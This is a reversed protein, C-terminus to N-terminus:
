GASADALRNIMEPDTLAPQMPDTGITGVLSEVYEHSSVRALESQAHLLRDRLKLEESVERRAPDALFGEIHRELSRWHNVERGRRTELRRRYWDSALLSERTFLERIEPAEITKGEFHGEAMVSLVAKLPPCALEYSHDDFYRKAVREQAETIQLIGDAYSVPDQREPRLLEETFVKSPNDFVRALYIRVFKETIRYGLRSAPITQGDATFDEIKELMGDRIMQHPDREEPGMRCWVEPILMSIDHGVAFRPGIHGAATSFGGLGTLILSVVCANLDIAPSLANFPGKTMAGESGAGTTSPSKGTLSCIYDMLLEPLEQYHLPSYVALSRHGAAPDPPNNRRGSLVAGVPAHIPEDAALKRHLQIGRMAVYTDHANVMDPRDQLYRPNKTPSGDVIRPHSTSVVYGETQESAHRLMKEMPGSYKDFDIADTVIERAQETTLPEFNSVFNGRRSLDWETQKDLGRHIADDPRQFLRYECNEVFKYSGAEAVGLGVDGVKSAPVVTSCSIDDERQVKAAAIFDQRLKFTRWNIGETGIRLYTGVLSRGDHKLEYGPSGNVIDVSFHQRWDEGMGPRVFRKIILVLAYVHEPITELWANYEDSFEPSPTLLQILSGLSRQPDLVRRSPFDRYDPRDRYDKSWRDQYDREFIEELKEFDAEHDKVFIPGYLMYDRLSKSIESKGGGSVTCPKHCFVGEGVTGVLRWSPAAPHKELRIKYGSPAIYTQKPSLPIRHEKGDRTWKVCREDLTVRADEPIYIVDPYVRDIGYGEPRVDIFAGYKAAVDDFTQGNYRRSNVQFEEGLSYSAFALAGGAHEEEANGMMNTAYSIQTKVEKKCYGYYNDAILTVMVGSANRCSLKFASGDNYRESEDKWCMGDHRQRETADDWRPLGLEKKTLGTLHTALIVCGTHGSWSGVDLGADNVAIFPDGANGFISEVFDLNSVLSGPAFFRTEMSKTDCYGPVQPCVMPRLLLSVWTEARHSSQSTYPLTLLSEPPNMAARFLNIFVRKPVIRKDGPIPLGGDVVHFTGATTRRDAKPNNLVGNYCRYSKILDTEFRHGLVPLSLERAMGHRDLTLTRGPLRLRDEGLVDACYDNLFAEIRADVPARHNGLLRNKERLSELLQSSFSGLSQAAVNEDPPLLGAAALQLTIYNRLHERDKPDTAAERNWGVARQLLSPDQIMTM